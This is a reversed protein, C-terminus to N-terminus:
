LQDRARNAQDGRKGGALRRDEQGAIMFPQCLPLREFLFVIGRLEGRALMADVKEFTVDDVDGADTEGARCQPRGVVRAKRWRDAGKGRRVGVDDDRMELRRRGQLTALVQYGAVMVM